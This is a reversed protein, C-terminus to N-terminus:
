RAGAPFGNGPSMRLWVKLSESVTSAHAAVYRSATRSIEPGSVPEASTARGPRRLTGRGVLRDVTACHVGAGQSGPPLDCVVEPPGPRARDRGGGPNASVSAPRHGSRVHIWHRSWIMLREEGMEVHRDRSPRRHRESPPSTLARRAIQRFTALCRRPTPRIANKRAGAGAECM